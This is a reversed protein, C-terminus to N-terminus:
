CDIVLAALECMQFSFFEVCSKIQVRWPGKYERNSGLVKVEHVLVGVVAGDVSSVCIVLILM